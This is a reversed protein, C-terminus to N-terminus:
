FWRGYYEVKPIYYEVRDYYTAKVIKYIWSLRGLWSRLDDRGIYHKHSINKEYDIETTYKYPGFSALLSGDSPNVLEVTCASPLM